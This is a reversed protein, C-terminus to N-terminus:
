NVLISKFENWRYRFLSDTPLMITPDKIEYYIYTDWMEEKGGNAPFGPNIPGTCSYDNAVLYIKLIVKPFLPSTNGSYRNDQGKIFICTLPIFDNGVLVQSGTKLFIRDYFMRYFTNSNDAGLKLDGTIPESYIPDAFDLEYNFNMDRGDPLAVRFTANKRVSLTLDRYMKLDNKLQIDEASFLNFSVFALLIFLLKM